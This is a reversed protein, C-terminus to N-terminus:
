RLLRTTLAKELDWNNIFIRKYLSARTLGFFIALEDFSVRVNNISVFINKRQNNAQEIDTAWRCNENCYNGNNDIRDISHKKSPREGMDEYFNEFSELWRECVTIGRGGYNSYGVSIKNNCRQIM